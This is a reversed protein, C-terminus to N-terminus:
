DISEMLKLVDHVVHKGPRWTLVGESELSKLERTVAERHTSVRAAFEAHTPVSLLEIDLGDLDTENHRSMSVIRFIECRIRQSVSMSGFEYVRQMNERVMCVLRRLVADLVDDHTKIMKSFYEASMATLVVDNVAICDSSRGSDDIAALEGFMMGPKLLDYFIQKGNGAFSCVRIEGSVIFYVDSSARNKSIVFQGKDYKRLLLDSAIDTRVSIPLKSFIEFTGLVTGSVIDDSQEFSDM